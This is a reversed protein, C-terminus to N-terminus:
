SKWETQELTNVSLLLIWHPPSAGDAIENAFVLLKRICEPIGGTWFAMDACIDAYTVVRWRHNETIINPVVLPKHYEREGGLPGEDLRVTTFFWNIWEVSAHRETDHLITLLIDYLEQSYAAVLPLCFMMYKFLYRNLFEGRAKERYRYVPYKDTYVYRNFIPCGCRIYHDFRARYDARSVATDDVMRIDDTLKEWITYLLKDYADDIMLADPSLLSMEHYKFKTLQLVIYRIRTQLPTFNHGLMLPSVYDYPTHVPNLNTMVGMGSIPNWLTKFQLVRKNLFYESPDYSFDHSDTLFSAVPVVGACKFIEHIFDSEPYVDPYACSPVLLHYIV